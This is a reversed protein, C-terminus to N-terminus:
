FLLPIDSMDGFRGQVASKPKTVEQNPSDPTKQRNVCCIGNDIVYELKELCDAPVYIEGNEYACRADSLTSLTRLDLARRGDGPTKRRVPRQSLGYLDATTSGRIDVDIDGAGVIHRITEIAKLRKSNEQHPQFPDLLDGLMQLVNADIHCKKDRPSVESRPRYVCTYSRRRQAEDFYPRIVIEYNLMDQSVETDLLMDGSSDPDLSEARNTRNASDLAVTDNEVSEPQISATQTHNLSPMSPISGDRSSILSAHDDPQSLRGSDTHDEDQLANISDSSHSGFLEQPLPVHTKDFYSWADTQGHLHKLAKTSIKFNTWMDIARKFRDLSQNEHVTGGTGLKQIVPVAGEDDPKTFYARQKTNTLQRRLSQFESLPDEPSEGDEANNSDFPILRGLTDWELAVRNFTGYSIDPITLEEDELEESCVKISESKQPETVALDPKSRSQCGGM